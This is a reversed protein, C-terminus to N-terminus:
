LTYRLYGYGYYEPSHVGMSVSNKDVYYGKIAKPEKKFYERDSIIHYEPEPRVLNKSCNWRKGQLAGDTGKKHTGTYKILYSALEAYNGSDDLPFVKVRNHGEYAKYWCRQLIETDIKNVVLHHHRAGKKGIEMVHIYKFELGAKRYEKRCERLFVDIDQRMQEPTRDPEGKRRIYDLVLHYDGYGYNANILIRVDMGGRVIAAGGATFLYSVCAKQIEDLVELCREKTAYEGIEELCGDSICIVHRKKDAEAGGRKKKIDEYEGYEVCAYNGGLRYLKEKNQSRIYVESM